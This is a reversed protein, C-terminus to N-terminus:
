MWRSIVMYWFHELLGLLMELGFLAVGLWHLWDRTSRRPLDMITVLLLMLLIVVSSVPWLYNCIAMYGFWPPEMGSGVATLIVLVSTAAMIFDGVANTVFFFKWRRADRLRAAAFCYLV